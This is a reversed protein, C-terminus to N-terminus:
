CRIETWQVSTHWQIIKYKKLNFAHIVFHRSPTLLSHLSVVYIEQERNPCLLEEFKANEHLIM